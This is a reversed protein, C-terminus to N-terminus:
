PRNPDDPTSPRYDEPGGPQYDPQGSYPQGPYPQGPYPQGPAQQGPYGSIPYQPGPQWAAPPPTKARNAGVAWLIVGIVLLLGGLGGGFVALLVGGAGTLIGGVPLEPGAVVVSDCDITYTGAQPFRLSGFSTVSDGNYDFTMDGSVTGREVPAPGTAACDPTLIGTSASYLVLKSDAEAVYETPGTIRFSDNVVDALKGFGIVALVIGVAVAVIAIVLGSWTLWKGIKKM